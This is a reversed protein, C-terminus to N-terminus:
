AGIIVGQQRRNGCTLAGAFKIPVVDYFANTVTRSKGVTFKQDSPCRLFLSDTNLAYLRKDPCNSDFVVDADMYRLSTFGADAMKSTSYRINTQLSEWYATYMDNDGLWLDPKAGTGVQDLYQANMLGQATSSTFATSPTYKNRWFANTATAQNIGVVTGASTPDDDVILRLGGLEKSTTGDSYLSQAVQNELTAIATKSRAKMLNLRQSTGKNETKDKDSFYIFTALYKREYEAMDVVQEEVINFSELGNYWKFMGNEAYIMPEAIVRGGDDDGKIGGKSKLRHLFANDNTINDFIQNNTKRLTASTQEGLNPVAM